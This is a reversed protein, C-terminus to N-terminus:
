GGSRVAHSLRSSVGLQQGGSGDPGGGVKAKAKQVPGVHGARGARGEQGAGGEPRERSEACSKGSRVRWGERKGKERGRAERGPQERERGLCGNGRSAEGGGAATGGGRRGEGRGSSVTELIAATDTQPM